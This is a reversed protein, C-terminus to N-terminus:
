AHNMQKLLLELQQNLRTNQFEKCFLKIRKQSISKKIMPLNWRLSQLAEETRIEQNLYLYDLITKEPLAIKFHTKHGPALTYGWFLADKVKRYRFEAINTTFTTTKLTSIATISFVGEPIFNYYALASELSVYSPQYIKNSALFLFAEDVQTDSFYYWTNALKKIYKKKQWEVLRRRHFQADMKVIDHISFLPYNSFKEIFQRITM